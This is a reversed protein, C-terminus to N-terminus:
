AVEEWVQRHIYINCLHDYTIWSVCNEFRVSALYAYYVHFYHARGACSSCHQLRVDHAWTCSKDCLFQPLRSPVSNEHNCIHIYIYIYLFHIYIYM